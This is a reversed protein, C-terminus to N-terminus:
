REAAAMKCDPQMRWNTAAQDAAEHYDINEAELGALDSQSAGLHWAM